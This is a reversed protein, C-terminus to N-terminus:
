YLGRDLHSKRLKSPFNKKPAFFQYLKLLKGKHQRRDQTKTTRILCVQIVHVDEANRSVVVVRRSTEDLIAINHSSSLLFAEGPLLVIMAKRRRRDFRTQFL